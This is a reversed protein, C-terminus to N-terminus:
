DFVFVMAPDLGLVTIVAHVSGMTPRRRGHLMDSLTARDVHAADALARYSLNALVRAQEIPRPDVRWAPRSARPQVAFEHEDRALPAGFPLEAQIPPRV